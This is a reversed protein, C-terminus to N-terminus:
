STASTAALGARKNITRDFEYLMVAASTPRFRDLVVSSVDHPM